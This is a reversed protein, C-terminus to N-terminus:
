MEIVTGLVLLRVLLEPAIHAPRRCAAPRGGATKKSAQLFPLASPAVFNTPTGHFSRCSPPVKHALDNGDGILFASYPHTRLPNAHLVRLPVSPLSIRQGGPELWVGFPRQHGDCAPPAQLSRSDARSSGPAALHPLAFAMSSSGWNRARGSPAGTASSPTQARGTLSRGIDRVREPPGVRACARLSPRIPRRVRVPTLSVGIHALRFPSQRFHDCTGGLYRLGRLLRLAPFGSVGKDHSLPCTRAPSPPCTM